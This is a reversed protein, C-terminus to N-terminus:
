SIPRGALLMLCCTVFDLPSDFNMIGIDASYLARLIHTSARNFLAILCMCLYKDVCGPVLCGPEHGVRQLQEEQSDTHAQTRLRPTFFGCTFQNASCLTLGTVSLTITAFALLQVHLHM